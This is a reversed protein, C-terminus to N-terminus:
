NFRPNNFRGKRAKTAARVRDLRGELGVRRAVAVKEMEQRGKFVLERHEATRNMKAQVRRQHRNAHPMMEKPITKRPDTAVYEVKRRKKLGFM